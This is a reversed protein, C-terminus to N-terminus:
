SKPARWKDSCILFVNLYKSYNISTSKHLLIFIYLFLWIKYFISLRTGGEILIYDFCYAELHLHGVDLVLSTNGIGHYNWVCFLSHNYAGQDLGPSSLIGSGYLDGGCESVLGIFVANWKLICMYRKDLECKLLPDVRWLVLSPNIFGTKTFKGQDQYATWTAFFGKSSSKGRTFFIVRMGNMSSNFSIGSQVCSCAIYKNQNM